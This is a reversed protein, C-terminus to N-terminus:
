NTLIKLKTKNNKIGEININHHKDEFVITYKKKTVIKKILMLAEEEAAFVATSLVDAMMVSDCFVSTSLFYDANKGSKPNFIHCFNKKNYRVFRQYNGSTAVGINKADVVKLNKSKNLPDQIGIRWNQNTQKEGLVFLDGGANIIGSFIKNQKLILVARDIAYGKVVGGLDIKLFDDSFSVFNKELIIETKKRMLNLNFSKKIWKNVNENEEMNWNWFYSITYISIDFFGNTFDRMEECFKLIGYTEEDIRIKNTKRNNIKYVISEPITRSYKNEIRKFEDFIKNFINENNVPLNLTVYTDMLISTM